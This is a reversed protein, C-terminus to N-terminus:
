EEIYKILSVIQGMDLQEARISLSLNNKELYKIVKEKYEKLNNLLTKRKNKFCLNVFKEFISFDINPRVKKPVLKIFASDVKPIPNFYEKNVTFLYEVDFFYQVIYTFTNRDKTTTGSLRHGVEKQVMIYVEEVNDIGNIIHEVIPSTIYYPINAVVKYKEELKPLKTKLIDQHVLSFNFFDKYRNKLYPILDDDIEYSIVHKANKVLMDTLFGRGPGIELVYKNKVNTIQEIRKLLNVDELFNQGYKKKAKYM